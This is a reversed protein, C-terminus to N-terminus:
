SQKATPEVSGFQELLWKLEAMSETIDDLARHQKTKPFKKDMSGHAWVKFSSVDLMRYHLRANLRPWHVVIFRRDQHISNGALIPTEGEFYEDVLKLIDAEAQEISLTSKASEEFLAGLNQKPWEEAGDLVEAPQHIIGEYRAMENFAFDSVICAVEIIQQAEPDLGTMELDMWLLRKPQAENESM